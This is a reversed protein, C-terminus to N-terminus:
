GAANIMCAEWGGAERVENAFWTQQTKIENNAHVNVEQPPPALLVVGTCVDLASVTGRKVFYACRIFGYM